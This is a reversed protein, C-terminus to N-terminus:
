LHRLEEPTNINAFAAEDDFDVEIAAMERQWAGFGRGGAALHNEIAPLVERRCLMFVPHTGQKTRTVAITATADAELAARLREVLDLPLLPADCPATVLLPTECASLGAHVGALPGAFDGIRDAIVPYDFAAYAAENRNANLLLRNDVQPSLREIVHAVLPRGRLVQLGKDVGGMRTARGGALILGTVDGATNM